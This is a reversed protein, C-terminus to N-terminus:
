SGLQALQTKCFALKTPYDSILGDVGNSVLRMMLPEENVTWPIVKLGQEHCSEIFRQTCYYYIPSIVNAHVNMAEHIIEDQNAKFGLKIMLAQFRSISFLASTQIDPNQLRVEKIVPMEFSQVTCRDTIGATNLTNLFDSVMESLHAMNPSEPAVKIEINLRINSWRPDKESRHHIDLLWEDLFLPSVAGVPQQEPFDSRKWSGIDLQQIQETTLEYLYKGEPKLDAPWKANSKNVQHDHFIVFRHDGTYHVDFELTNVGNDVAAEFGATTHEPFLGRAGRHGQFDLNKVEVPSKPISASMALLGMLASLYTFHCVRTIM